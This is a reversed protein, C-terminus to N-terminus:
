SLSVPPGARSSAQRDRLASPHNADTAPTAQAIPDSFPAYSLQISCEAVFRFTPPEFGGAGAMEISM